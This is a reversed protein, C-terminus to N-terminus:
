KKPKAGVAGEEMSKLQEGLKTLFGQRMPVDFTVNAYIPSGDDNYGVLVIVPKAKPPPPQFLPNPPPQKPTEVEVSEPPDVVSLESMLIGTETGEVFAWEGDDSIGVVKCPKQFQDVGQSTWQIFSGKEPVSSQQRVELEGGTEKEKTDGIIGNETLGAFDLTQRFQTIFSDVHGKNFVTEERERVLYIRISIDERPLKGRYKEWLERHVKPEIAANEIAMEGKPHDSGYTFIDLASETVCFRRNDKSGNEDFLGFQKLASLFAQFKSNNTKYGWYSAVADLSVFHKDEAEYITRAKEICSELNFAPYAPSRVRKKKIAEPM